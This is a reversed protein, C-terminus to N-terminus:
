DTALPGNRAETALWQEFFDLVRTRYEEPCLVDIRRHEAEQVIWLAKPNGAAAYLREIETLTVYIDRGGHIFMVPRPSIQSVWRLPDAAALDCRLRLGVFRVVWPAVIRALRHPMGRHWLGAQVTPQVQGFGSDSVIAAIAPCQAATRM